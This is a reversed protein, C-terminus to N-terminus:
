ISANKQLERLANIPLFKPTPKQFKSKDKPAQRPDVLNEYFVFVTDKRETFNVLVNWDLDKFRHVAKGRETTFPAEKAVTVNITERKRPASVIGKRIYYPGLVEPTVGYKATFIEIAEARGKAVDFDMNEAPMSVAVQELILAQEGAKLNREAVDELLTVNSACNFIIQRKGRPKRVKIEGDASNEEVEEEGDDLTNESEIETSTATVMEEVPVDVTEELTNVVEEVEEIVPITEEQQMKSNKRNGKAM